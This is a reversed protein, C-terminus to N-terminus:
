KYEETTTGDPWCIILRRGKEKAYRITAWTGSGRMIERTSSPTAIMTEVVDVIKHNRKIEYGQPIPNPLPHIVDKGGSCTEIAWRHQEENSPYIIHPLFLTLGHFERDAGHCGGHVARKWDPNKDM